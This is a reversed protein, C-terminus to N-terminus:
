HLVNCIYMLWWLLSCVSLMVIGVIVVRTEIWWLWRELTLYWHVFGDYVFNAMDDRVFPHIMPSSQIYVSMVVVGVMVVMGMLSRRRTSQCCVFGEYVLDAMDDRVFPHIMTSSPISPHIFLSNHKHPPRNYADVKM